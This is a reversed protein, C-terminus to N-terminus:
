EIPKDLYKSLKWQDNKSRTFWLATSVTRILYRTESDKRLNLIYKDFGNKLFPLNIEQGYERADKPRPETTFKITMPICFQEIKGQEGTELAVILKAYTKYLDQSLVVDGKYQRLLDQDETACVVSATFLLFCTVITKM